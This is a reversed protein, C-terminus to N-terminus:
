QSYRGALPDVKTRAPIEAETPPDVSSTQIAREYCIEAVGPDVGVPDTQLIKTGDITGRRGSFGVAEPIDDTVHAGSAIFLPVIVLNPTTVSEPLEEPFPPEEVFYANVSAFSEEKRIRRAHATVTEKNASGHESGHGVLAIATKDEPSDATAGIQRRGCRSIAEHTGVPETVSVAVNDSSAEEVRDPVVTSVFYGDSVFVPVTVINPTQIAEVQEAVTPTGRVFGARVDAFVGKERLRHAHTTAPHEQAREDIFGHAVLLLSARETM